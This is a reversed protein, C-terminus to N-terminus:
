DADHGGTTGDDEPPMLGQEQFVKRWQDYRRQFEKVTPIGESDFPIPHPIVRGDRTEFETATVRIIMTPKM